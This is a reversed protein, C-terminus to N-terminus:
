CRPWPAHRRPPCPHSWLHTESADRVLVCRFGDRKPEYMAGGGLAKAGPIREESKALAVAVPGQLAAPLETVTMDYWGQLVPRSTENGANTLSRHFACDTVPSPCTAHRSVQGGPGLCMVSEAWGVAIAM